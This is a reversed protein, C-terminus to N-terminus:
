TVESLVASLERSTQVWDSLTLRRSRAAVRLRARERRDGLRPDDIGDPVLVHV